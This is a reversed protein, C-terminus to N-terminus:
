WGIGHDEGHNSSAGLVDQPQPDMLIANVPGMRRLGLLAEAERGLTV